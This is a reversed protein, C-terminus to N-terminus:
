NKWLRLKQQEHLENVKQITLIHESEDKLRGVEYRTIRFNKGGGKCYTNLVVWDEWEDQVLLQFKNETYTNLM